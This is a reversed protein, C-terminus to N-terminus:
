RKRGKKQALAFKLPSVYQKFVIGNLHDLEHLICKADMEVFERTYKNGVSNFWSVTITSPRAISLAIGPFSLCGENHLWLDQSVSIISPNYMVIYEHDRQSHILMVRYSIGVQNAALGLANQSQLTDLLDREFVVSDLPPNNFDWELCPKLLIPDPWIKVPLIM